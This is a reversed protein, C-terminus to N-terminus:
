LVKPAVAERQLFINETYKRIMIFIGREFLGPDAGSYNNTSDTM